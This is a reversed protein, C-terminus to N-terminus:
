AQARMGVLDKVAAVLARSEIPKALHLQFGARLIETRDAERAFSTLAAAPVCRAGTATERSRIERILQYGDEHPMAIDSLLVDVPSRGLVDLAEAVSAATLVLAGQGELIATVMERSDEDDEVLLVSVGELSARPPDGSEVTPGAASPGEAYVPVFPLQVSFTAGRGTGESEAMVSGGHAEVLHRVISLGLGLGGHSRTTLANAQRFPEFVFPLFEAPIGEGTDTVKIVAESGVRQVVVHVEGGEPTFKIANSLLNLVVQQLRAADALMPSVTEDIDVALRVRRADAASQMVELASRVVGPLNIAARELSLKGAMIRSVDLLEDILESQRRANAHIAAIARERRGDPLIGRRLMDAWGLIAHLPTRLEHSVVALFQDKLRNAETLRREAARLDLALRRVEEYARANSIALAARSAVQDAFRLDDERYRGPTESIFTLVGVARGHAVMPVRMFSRPALQRILRVHEADRSWTTLAEDSIQPVLVPTVTQAVQAVSYPLAPDEPYRERLETAIRLRQLDAHAIEITEPAGGDRVIDVQCWDAIAPVALRAVAKLTQRYDLSSALTAGAEALFASQDRARRQAEEARRRASIDRAIKSAGVVVGAADHIPSVTLSVPVQRGDLSVRVTEFHSVKEGARIRRLVDQEEGWRDPPIVVRISRGVTEAAAYGFMREAASNWSTIVGELDMGVVADDSSAVIAALERTARERGERERELRRRQTVDRFVIVAGAIRGDATRIPAASDDIPIERGDRAVLITHNALGAVVGEHLVRYVPNEAPQRTQENLIVFVERLPKGVAEASTWGTMSEAVANLRTVHASADTTVVGDGISGLTVTLREESEALATTGRRWAENLASIVVGVALFVLLGLWEGWEGGRWSYAPGLWLYVASVASIGTTVLGPGIGGLWASVMIAPFLTIYPLRAGWLPEFMIRLLIGGLAIAVASGYRFFPSLKIARGALERRPAPDQSDQRAPKPEV